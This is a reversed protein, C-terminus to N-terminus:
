IEGGKVRPLLLLLCLKLHIRRHRHIPLWSVPHIFGRNQGSIHMKPLKTRSFYNAPYHVAGFINYLLESALFIKLNKKTGPFAYHRTPRRIEIERGVTVQFVNTVSYEIINPMSSIHSIHDNNLILAM